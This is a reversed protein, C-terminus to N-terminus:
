DPEPDIAPVEVGGEPTPWTAPVLVGTEPSPEALEADPLRPLPVDLVCGEVEVWVEASVPPVDTESVTLEAEVGVGVGGVAFAPEAPVKASVGGTEVGADM